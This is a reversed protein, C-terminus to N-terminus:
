NTYSTELREPQHAGRNKPKTLPKKILLLVPTFSPCTLKGQPLQNSQLLASHTQLVLLRASDCTCLESQVMPLLVHADSSVNGVASNHLQVIWLGPGQRAKQTMIQVETSTVDTSTSKYTFQTTFHSMVSPSRLTCTGCGELLEM